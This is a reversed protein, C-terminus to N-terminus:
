LWNYRYEIRLEIDRFKKIKSETLRRSFSELISIKQLFKTSLMSPIPIM